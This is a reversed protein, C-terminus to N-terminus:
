CSASPLQKWCVKLPSPPLPAQEISSPYPVERAFCRSERWSDPLPTIYCHRKKIRYSYILTAYLPAETTLQQAIETECFLQFGGSQPFLCCKRINPPMEAGLRRRGHHCAHGTKWNGLVSSTAASLIKVWCLCFHHARFLNSMRRWVLACCTDTAKIKMKRIPPPPIFVRLWQLHFFENMLCFYHILLILVSVLFVPCCCLHTEELTAQITQSM